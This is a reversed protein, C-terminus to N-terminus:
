EHLILTKFAKSQRNTITDLAEYYDDLSFRHSILPALQLSGQRYLQVAYDWASSNAGFVAHITVQKIIFIDSSVSLTSASAELGTLLITGGRKVTFIAEEVAQNHGAGEFVLDAGRGGTLEQIATQSDERSMNITHTAGFQHALELREARFGLLVVMAPNFLKALQVALLSLPGDGIIAVIDGPRPQARQFAHAVIATPELLTAEEFSADTPLIHIQRAPVAVYEALGGPRTFGMEDYGTECLNTQGDRCNRCVGCFRFNEAVVKAGPEINQVLDGVAVVEGSWEHGPILPYRVYESTRKGRYVEIDSESLGVARSHVLVEDPLITPIELETVHAQGPKTIV